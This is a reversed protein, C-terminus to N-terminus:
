LSSAVFGYGPEGSADEDEFFRGSVCTDTVEVIEIALLPTEMMPGSGSPNCGSWDTAMGEVMHVGPVLAANPLLATVKVDSFCCATESYWALELQNLAGVGNITAVVVDDRAPEPPSIGDCGMV